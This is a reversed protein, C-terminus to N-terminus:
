LTLFAPCSTDIMGSLLQEGKYTITELSFAENMNLMTLVPLTEGSKGM